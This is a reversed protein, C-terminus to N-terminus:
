TLVTRSPRGLARLGAFANARAFSVPRRHDAPLSERLVFAGFLVNVFALGAAALFPVRPGFTGLGVGEEDRRRTM